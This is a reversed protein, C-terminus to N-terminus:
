TENNNEKLADRATFLVGVAPSPSIHWRNINQTVDEKIKELAARLKTNEDVLGAAKVFGILPNFVELSNLREVEAILTALDTPSNAILTADNDNPWASLNGNEQRRAKGMQDRDIIFIVTATEGAHSVCAMGHSDIWWPGPTAKDVRAKIAELDLTM